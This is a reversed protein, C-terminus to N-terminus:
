VTPSAERIRVDETSRVRQVQLKLPSVNIEVEWFDSSDWRQLMM